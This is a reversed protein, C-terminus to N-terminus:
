LGNDNKFDEVAGQAQDEVNQGVEGAGEVAEGAQQAVDGAQEEFPVDVAGGLADESRDVTDM